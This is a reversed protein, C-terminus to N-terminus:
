QFDELNINANDFSKYDKLTPYRGEMFCMTFSTILEILLEKDLLGTEWLPILMSECDAIHQSLCAINISAKIRGKPIKVSM